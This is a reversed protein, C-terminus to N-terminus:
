RRTKMARCPLGQQTALLMLSLRHMLKTGDATEQERILVNPRPMTPTSRSSGFAESIVACSGHRYPREKLSFLIRPTWRGIFISGALKSGQIRRMPKQRRRIFKEVFDRIEDRVGLECSQVTVAQWGQAFPAILFMQTGWASVPALGNQLCAM